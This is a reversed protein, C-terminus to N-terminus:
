DSEKKDDRVAIFTPQIYTDLIQEYEIEIIKGIFHNWPMSRLQDTLGSGVDVEIGAANMLSLSGIMGEYKGEGENIGTCLLDATNRFKIKMCDNVRKGPRYMHDVHKIMVGEWGYKVLDEAHSIADELTLYTTEIEELGEVKHYLMTTLKNLRDKANLTEDILDFIMISELGLASPIGKAFNTRYTTLKAAKPRDGLKGHTLEVYEGEIIFDEPLKKL